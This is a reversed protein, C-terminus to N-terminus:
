IQVAITKQNFVRYQGVGLKRPQLPNRMTIPLALFDIDCKWYRRPFFAQKCRELPDTGLSLISDILAKLQQYQRIAINSGITNRWAHKQCATRHMLMQYAPCLTGPDAQDNFGPFRPLYVMVAEKDTVACICNIWVQSIFCQPLDATIATNISSLKGIIISHDLSVSFTDCLSQELHHALHANRCKLRVFTRLYELCYSKGCVNYIIRKCIGRTTHLPNSKFNQCPFQKATVLETIRCLDIELGRFQRIRAFKVPPGTAAFVAPRRPYNGVDLLSRAIIVPHSVISKGLLDVIFGLATVRKPAQHFELGRGARNLNRFNLWSSTNHTSETGTRHTKTGDGAFRM